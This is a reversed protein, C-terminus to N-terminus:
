SRIFELTIGLWADVFEPSAETTADNAAGSQAGDGICADIDPRFLTSFGRPAKTRSRRVSLIATSISPPRKLAPNPKEIDRRVFDAAIRGGILRDGAARNGV